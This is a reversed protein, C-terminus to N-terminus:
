IKTFTMIFDHDKEGCSGDPGAFETGTVTFTTDDTLNIAGPGTNTTATGILINNPTCGWGTAQEDDMVTQNCVINFQIPATVGSSAWEGDFVRSTSTSGVTLTYVGNPFVKGYTQTAQTVIVNYDGVFDTAPVLCGISMNVTFLAKFTASSFINAGTNGSDFTRGDALTMTAEFRVVDGAGVDGETMGLITLAEAFPFNMTASPLGDPSTEFSSVPISRFAIPDVNGFGGGNDVFEVTWDYSTVNQGQNGSYFEVEAMYASTPDGVFYDGSSSLERPFAGKQLDDFTEYPFDVKTCSSVVVSLIVVSSLFYILKKM